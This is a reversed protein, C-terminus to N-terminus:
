RRVKALFNGILIGIWSSGAALVVGWGLSRVGMVTDGRRWFEYRFSGMSARYGFYRGHGHFFANDAGSGLLFDSFLWQTPVYLMVFVAACGLMALVDRRWGLGRGVRGLVWDIGMAPVFLLLPFM